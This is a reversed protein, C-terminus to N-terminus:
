NILKFIADDIKTLSEVWSHIIMDGVSQEVEQSAMKLENTRKEIEKLKLNLNNIRAEFEIRSIPDFIDAKSQLHKVQAEWEKEKDEIKKFLIERNEM